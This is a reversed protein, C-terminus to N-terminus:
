LFKIVRKGQEDIGWYKVKKGDLVSKALEELIRDVGGFPAIIDVLWLTQGSKWDLPALRNVSSMLRADVEDSVSAWLAVGAVRGKSRFLHIQRLMLAPMVAWELDALFLHRHAPSQTLLWVIEGLLTAMTPSAANEPTREPSPTEHVATGNTMATEGAESTVTAETHKNVM